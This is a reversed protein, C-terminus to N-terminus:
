PLSASGLFHWIEREYSYIKFSLNKAEVYFSTIAGQCIIYQTTMVVPGALPTCLSAHGYILVNLSPTLVFIELRNGLHLVLFIIISMQILRGRLM